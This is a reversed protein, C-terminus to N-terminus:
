CRAKGQLRMANVLACGNEEPRDPLRQPTIGSAEFAALCASPQLGIRAMKWPTMLNPEARFDLPARPDWEPPIRLLGSFVAGLLALPALLLLTLLIRRIM